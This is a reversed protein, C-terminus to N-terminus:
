LRALVDGNLALVAEMPRTSAHQDDEGLGVGVDREAVGLQDRTMNLRTGGLLEISGVRGAAAFRIQSVIWSSAPRSMELGNPRQLRERGGDQGPGSNRSYDQDHWTARGVGEDEGGLHRGV